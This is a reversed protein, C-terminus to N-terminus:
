RLGQGWTPDSSAAADGILVVGDKYPHSVWTEAGDFTVLPEVAKVRAHWEAAAGAKVSEEVFRPIDAAGQLRRSVSKHYVIYARVRGQGQPFLYATQGINPNLVISNADEPPMPMEEFLRGSILLRKPDQHVAFGGWKRVNSTRGDAGIVLRAPLEESHGNQEVVVSPVTGPKVERVAASRRVEVGADAAAQLLVEQM